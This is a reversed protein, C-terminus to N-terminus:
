AEKIFEEPRHGPLHECLEELKKRSIRQFDLWYYLMGPSLGTKRSFAAISEAEDLIAWTLKDGKIEVVGGLYRPECVPQEETAILEEKPIKLAESLKCLTMKSVQSATNLAHWLTSKDFGTAQCFATRTGYDRKITDQILQRKIFFKGRM